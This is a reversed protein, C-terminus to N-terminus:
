SRQLAPVALEITDLLAHTKIGDIEVLVIPHIVEQSDQKSSTALQKTADCISTHHRKDCDANQLAEVNLHETHLAQAISVYYRQQRSERGSSRHCEANCYVCRRKQKSKGQQTQFQYQQRRGKKSVDDQKDSEVSNRRTWLRLAETFQTFTWEKLSADNCVLDGRIGPLKDLTM